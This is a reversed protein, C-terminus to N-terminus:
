HKTGGKLVVGAENAFLSRGGLRLIEKAGLDLLEKGYSEKTIIFVPAPKPLETIYWDPDDINAVERELYYGASPYPLRYEVVLPTGSKPVLNVIDRMSIRNSLVPICLSMLVVTFCVMSGAIVWVATMQEKLKLILVGAIIMGLALCGSLLQAGAAAEPFKNNTWSVLVGAILVTTIVGAVIGKKISKLNNQADDWLLAVFIAAVPYIPFIYTPLQTKSLTFFIFIVATWVFALKAGTNVKRYKLIGQILFVSWPFFMGLLTPINLLYSQLGGTTGAHEPKLFRTINNAVLFGDIFEQGHLYLMALYWPLGTIAFALVGIAAEIGALKKWERMWAIHVLIALGMLVPAVPGKTIMALGTGAGLLVAWGIGKGKECDFWRRYGYLGLILFFVFTMDTVSSRALIIQQVCTAMVVASILGVRKGFDYSALLYVLVLLGLGAIASPFRPAMDNPGFVRTSAAALWYFVPPKDFWNKGHYQPTLWEGSEAMEKGVQAYTPEDADALPYSGMGAFYLFFLAAVFVVIHYPRIIGVGPITQGYETM